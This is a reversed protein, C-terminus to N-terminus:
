GRPIQQYPEQPPWSHNATGQPDSSITGPTGLFSHWGRLSRHFHNWRHGPITSLGRPIHPFPELPAWSHNIIGQPDTSITETTGLFPQCDGLPSLIHNWHHGPIGRPSKYNAVDQQLNGMWYSHTHHLARAGAKVVRTIQFFVVQWTRFISM